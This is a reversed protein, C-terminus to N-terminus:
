CAKSQIHTGQFFATPPAETSVEGNAMLLVNLAVEEAFKVEHTAVM